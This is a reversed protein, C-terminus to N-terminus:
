YKTTTFTSLVASLYTSKQTIADFFHSPSPAFIVAAHSTLRRSRRPFEVCNSLNSDVAGPDVIAGCRKYCYGVDDICHRRKPWPSNKQYRKLRPSPTRSTPPGRENFELFGSYSIRRQQNAVTTPSLLRTARYIRQLGRLPCSTIVLLLLLLLLWKVATQGPCGPYAPVLLFM